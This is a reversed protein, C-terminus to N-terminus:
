FGGIGVVMGGHGIGSCVKKGKAVESQTFTTANGTGAECVCGPAAQVVVLGVGDEEEVGERSCMMGRAGM